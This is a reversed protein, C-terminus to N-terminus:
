TFQTQIRALLESVPMPEKVSVRFPVITFTPGMIGNIGAVLAACGTRTAGSVVDALGIYKSILVSWSTYVVTPLTVDGPARIREGYPLSMSYDLSTNAQVEYAPSPLRPFVTAETVGDLYELQREFSAHAEKNTIKLFRVFQNYESMPKTFVGEYVRIVADLLSLICWGDYITCNMTWVFHQLNNDNSSTLIAHRALREGLGM